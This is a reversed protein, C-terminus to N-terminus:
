PGETSALTYLELFELNRETAAARFDQTWDKSKRPQGDWVVVAAVPEGTTRSIRVAEDCVKRNVAAYDPERAGADLVILDGRADVEEIVRDYVPGWVGPRDTVSADRFRQPDTALVVRRRIGLPGAEELAILDVGCAASAALTTVRHHQLFSRIRSRVLAVNGTPFRAPMAGPADIRRGALAIVM